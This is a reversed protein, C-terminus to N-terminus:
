EPANPPITMQPPWSRALPLLQAYLPTLQGQVTSDHSVLLLTYIALKILRRETPSGSNYYLELREPRQSKRRVASPGPTPTSTSM